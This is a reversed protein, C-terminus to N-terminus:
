KAQIQDFVGGDAFHTAQAKAWSGFVGDITVLELKPFRAIDDPASYQPHRPRYYHKAALRQGTPSYLFDLYAQAVETTGHKKAVGDVLTVPTEALISVSPIVIDFKGPGLENLTLFAENEWALLVDGVGRQVFTNTSGRAGSDLVPVNKYLRTVFDKETKPKKSKPKTTTPKTTTPKTTTTKGPTPRTTTPTPTPTSPPSPRSTQTSGPTGPTLSAADALSRAYWSTGAIVVVFALLAAGICSAVVVGRRVGRSPPLSPPGPLPGTPPADLVM